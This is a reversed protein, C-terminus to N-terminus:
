SISIGVPGVHTAGELDTFDSPQMTILAIFAMGSMNKPVVTSGSGERDIIVPTYMPQNYLNVWAAYIQKGVERAVWAQQPDWTFSVSSPYSSDDAFTPGSPNLTLQPYVTYAPEVTCSGPVTFQLGINYAWAAPIATDFPVPNPAIGHLIRLFADHRTEVGLIAASAAGSATTGPLQEQIGIISGFNACTILNAVALFEDFNTVPFAYKCALIPPSQKSQLLIDSVAAVHVLTALLLGIFCYITM